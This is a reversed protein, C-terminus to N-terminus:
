RWVASLSAPLSRDLATLDKMTSGASKSTGRSTFCQSVEEYMQVDRAGRALLEQMHSIAGSQTNHCMLTRTGNNHTASVIYRSM